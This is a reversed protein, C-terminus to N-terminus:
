PIWDGIDHSNRRPKPEPKAHQSAAKKLDTRTTGILDSLYDLVKEKSEQFEDKRMSRTDQSKADFVHVVSGEITIVAFEDYPRLFKGMNRAKAPSDCAFVKETYYGCKVLAYKRLHDATPFRKAMADPLNTWVEHVSAFYHNHSKMSRHAVPELAYEEGIVFQRDCLGAFRPHPRMETGTWTFAVPRIKM